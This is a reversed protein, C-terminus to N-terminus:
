VLSLIPPLHPGFLEEGQRGPTAPGRTMESSVQDPRRISSGYCGAQKPMTARVHGRVSTSGARPATIVKGNLFLPAMTETWRDQSRDVSIRWVVGATSANLAVLTADLRGVFVMGNGVAVGRNTQGCCIALESLPPIEPNFTWTLAGTAADVAFVHGHPSTFYLVGDVIIPQSEFSTSSSMVKTHFTWAPQLTSVNSPNIHDVNVFRMDGADNGYFPWDSRNATTTQTDGRTFLLTVLLALSFARTIAQRPIM